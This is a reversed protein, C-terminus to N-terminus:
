WRTRPPTHNCNLDIARLKGTGSSEIWNVGIEIKAGM